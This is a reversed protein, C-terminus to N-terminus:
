VFLVPHPGVYQLHLVMMYFLCEERDVNWQAPYWGRRIRGCRVCVLKTSKCPCPCARYLCICVSADLDILLRDYMYSVLSLEFHRLPFFIHNEVDVYSIQCSKLMVQSEELKEVM